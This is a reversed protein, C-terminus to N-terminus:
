LSASKPNWNVIPSLYDDCHTSYGPIPSILTKNLELFKGNDDSIDRGISHKRHIEMDRKLTGMKCAFTNTTSPITRWHSSPSLLITSKLDPYHLYKDLHDYLTVYEVPLTFAELLLKYWGERHLYDDELIYIITDDPLQKSEIIELTALFSSAETGCRIPYYNTTPHVNSDGFYTDYIFNLNALSLDTTAMLNYFCNEKSFWEPRNRNPLLSNPSHYCQRLFVEIKM